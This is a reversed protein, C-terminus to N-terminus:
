GGRRRAARAPVPGLLVRAHHGVARAPRRRRRRAWGGAAGQRVVRGAAAPGRLAFVVSTGSWSSSSSPPPRRPCVSLWPSSAPSSRCCASPAPVPRSRLRVRPSSGVTVSSPRTSWRSPRAGSPSSSRPLRPRAWVSCSSSRRGAGGAAGRSSRRSSARPRWPSCRRAARTSRDVNTRGPRTWGADHSRPWCSRRWPSSSTRTAGRRGATSPARSSRASPSAAESARVGCGARPRGPRVPSSGTPSSASARRSSRRPASARRRGPRPRVRAHRRRPRRRPEIRRPRGPRGRPRSASRPRRGPDRGDATGGRARHGDLQPDVHTRRRGVSRRPSRASRPWLRRSPSSPWSRAWRPWPSRGGPRSAPEPRHRTARDGRADDYPTSAQRTRSM